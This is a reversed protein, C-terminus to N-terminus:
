EEGDNTPEEGNEEETPEQESSDTPEEGNEEETPQQESNIPQEGETPQEEEGDDTPEEGDDEPEDDGTEDETPEVVEEGGDGGEETPEEGEGEQQPHLIAMLMQMELETLPEDNKRKFMITIIEPTLIVGEKVVIPCLSKAVGCYVNQCFGLQHKISLNNDLFEEIDEDTVGVEKLMTVFDLATMTLHNVRDEEAQREREDAEEQTEDYVRVERIEVEDEEYEIHNRRNTEVPEVRAFAKYGDARMLEINLDYNLISGKNKPPFELVNDVLKAYRENRAM